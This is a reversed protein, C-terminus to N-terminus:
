AAAAEAPQEDQEPKAPIQLEDRAALYGLYAGSGTSRQHVGQADEPIVRVTNEVTERDFEGKLGLRFGLLFSERYTAVDEGQAQLPNAMAALARAIQADAEERVRKIDRKFGFLSVDAGRRYNGPGFRAVGVNFVQSRLAIDGLILRKPKAYPAECPYVEETLDVTRSNPRAQKAAAITLDLLEKVDDTTVNDLAVDPLEIKEVPAKTRSKRAAM